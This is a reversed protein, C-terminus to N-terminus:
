MCAYTCWGRCCWVTYRLQLYVIYHLSSLLFSYPYSGCSHKSSHTAPEQLTPLSSTFSPGTSFVILRKVSLTVNRLGLIIYTLLVM